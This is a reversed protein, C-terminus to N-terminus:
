GQDEQFFFTQSSFSSFFLSHPGTVTPCLNVPLSAARFRDHLSASGFACQRVSQLACECVHSRTWKVAAQKPSTQNRDCPSGLRGLHSLRCLGAQLPYSFDVVLRFQSGPISFPFYLLSLFSAHVFSSIPHPYVPFLAAAPTSPFHHLSSDM